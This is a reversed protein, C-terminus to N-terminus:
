RTIIRHSVDKDIRGDSYLILRLYRFTDKLPVVQGDLSIDRANSSDSNSQCM